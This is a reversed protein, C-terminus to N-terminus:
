VTQMDLIALSECIQQALERTPALVLGVKGRGLSLSMPIGFALTKGTGTQALGIVDQGGLAVPISGAQIPTPIIIGHQELRWALNKHVGLAVFGSSVTENM